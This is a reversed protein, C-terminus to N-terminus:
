PTAAPTTSVTGSDVHDPDLQDDLKLFELTQRARVASSCLAEDTVIVMRVFRASVVLASFVDGRPAEQKDPTSRGVVSVPM